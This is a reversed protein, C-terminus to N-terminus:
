AAAPADAPPAGYHNAQSHTPQAVLYIVIAWGIVPIIWLLQLWGSRGTDHLRRGTVATMPLFLALTVLGMIAHRLVVGGLAHVIVAFLAFWWFEAVSARGNYDAYKQMLCTKVSTAFDM